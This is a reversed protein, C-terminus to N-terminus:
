RGNLPSAAESEHAGSESHKEHAKLRKKVRDIAGNLARESPAHGSNGGLDGDFNARAIEDHSFGAKLLKLELMALTHKSPRRARSPKRWIHELATLEAALEGTLQLACRTRVVPTQGGHTVLLTEQSEHRAAAKGFDLLQTRLEAIQNLWERASGQEPGFMQRLGALWNWAAFAGDSTTPRAHSAHVLDMITNLAAVVDFGFLKDIRDDSDGRRIHPFYELGCDACRKAVAGNGDTVNEEVLTVKDNRAPSEWTCRARAM